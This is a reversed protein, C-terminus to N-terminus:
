VWLRAGAGLHPRIWVRKPRPCGWPAGLQQGWSCRDRSQQLKRPIGALMLPAFPASYSTETSKLFVNPTSIIKKEEWLQSHEQLLPSGLLSSPFLFIFKRILEM